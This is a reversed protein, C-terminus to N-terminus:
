AFARGGLERFRELFRWEGERPTLPFLRPHNSFAVIQYRKWIFSNPPFFNAVEDLLIDNDTEKVISPFPYPMGFRAFIAEELKAEMERYGAFHQKLPRPVDVLYAESADHLLGALALLTNGTKEAIRYSVEISHAAVSWFDATHGTYRCISALAHAIDRIDIDELKPNLPAFERGTYTCITSEMISPLAGRSRLTAPSGAADYAIASTDM